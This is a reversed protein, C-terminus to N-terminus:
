IEGGKPPAINASLDVNADVAQTTRREMNPDMVPDGLAPMPQGTVPDIQMQAPDPIVGDKIEKKFLGYIM